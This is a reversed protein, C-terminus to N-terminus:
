PGHRVSSGDPGHRQGAGDPGHRVNPPGTDAAATDIIVRVRFTLSTDTTYESSHYATLVAETGLAQLIWGENESEDDIYHNVQATDIDIYNWAPGATTQIKGVDAGWRDDGSDDGENWTTGEDNAGDAGWGQNEGVPGDTDKWEEYTAGDADGPGPTSGDCDGEHWPKVLPYVFLSGAGLELTGTEYIDLRFSKVWWGSPIHDGLNPCRFLVNYAAGLDGLAVYVREGYNYTANGSEIYTDEIDTTGSIYFTSDAWASVPLLLLIYLLYRM